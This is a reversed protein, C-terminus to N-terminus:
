FVQSASFCCCADSSADRGQYAETLSHSCASSLLCGKPIFAKEADCIKPFKLNCFFDVLMVYKWSGEHTFKYDSNGQELTNQWAFAGPWATAPFEFTSISEPISNPSPFPPHHGIYVIYWINATYLYMIVTCVTCSTIYTMCALYTLAPVSGFSTSSSALFMKSFLPWRIQNMIRYPEVWDKTRFSTNDLFWSTSAPHRSYPPTRATAPLSQILSNHLLINNLLQPPPKPSTTYLSMKTITRDCIKPLYGCLTM